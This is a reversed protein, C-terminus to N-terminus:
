EPLLELHETYIPADPGPPLHQGGVLDTLVCWRVGWALYTPGPWTQKEKKM